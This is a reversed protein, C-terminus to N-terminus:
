FLLAYAAAAPLVFRPIRVVDNFELGYVEDMYEDLKRKRMEETGDWEEGDEAPEIDADMKDVDVGDGGGDVTKDKKKRKKKAKKARDSSVQAEPLVIDGIDIDEDWHPKEVDAEDEDDGYIKAMQRDHADSDWDADLDLEQL